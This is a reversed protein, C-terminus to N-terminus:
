SHGAFRAAVEDKPPPHALTHRIRLLSIAGFVAPLGLQFVRYALVSTAALGLPTGYAAFMGILGGETGGVGGPTPLFAGAHGLAYALVFVGLPPAGGGFAQFACALSAVDFAFYSIAGTILLPDGHRLLEVSTRVGDHVFRRVRWFLARIRGGGPEQPPDLRAFGLALLIAIGAGVAPLLTALLSADGPLVGVTVLGGAFVLAAFSVSSTILFLAAHRSTALDAPVGIRTMVLAGLAPGGAGGAPLLVNAGQEAFGLVLARRWSMVRDFASWLARVFGFMSMVACGAVAAIWIPEADSLRDRIEGVGPLAAILAIGIAAVVTFFAVRKVIARVDVGPTDNAQEPSSPM